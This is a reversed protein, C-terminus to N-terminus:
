SAKLKGNEDRGVSKTREFKKEVQPIGKIKKM